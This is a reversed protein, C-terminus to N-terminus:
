IAAFRSTLHSKHHQYTHLIRCALLPFASLSDNARWLCLDGICATELVARSCGRCPSLAGCCSLCVFQSRLTCFAFPIKVVPCVLHHRGGMKEQTAGPRFVTPHGREGCACVSLSEAGLM